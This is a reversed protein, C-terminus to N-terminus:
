HPYKGAAQPGVAGSVSVSWNQRRPAVVSVAESSDQRTPVAAPM